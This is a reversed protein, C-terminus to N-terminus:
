GVTVTTGLPGTVASRGDGGSVATRASSGSVATAASTGVAYTPTPVGVSAPGVFGTLDGYTGGPQGYSVGATSYTSM